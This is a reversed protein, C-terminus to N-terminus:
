ALLIRMDNIFLLKQNSNIANENNQNSKETAADFACNIVQNNIFDPCLGLVNRVGLTVEKLDIFGTNSVDFKYFLKEREKRQEPTKKYPLKSNIRGWVYTVYEKMAKNKSDNNALKRSADVKGDIKKDRKVIKRLCIAYLQELIMKM